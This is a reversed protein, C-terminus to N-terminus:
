KKNFLKYCYDLKTCRIQNPVFNRFNTYERNSILNRRYQSFYHHRKKINMNIAHRIWNKKQDKRCLTKTKVLRTENYIDLIPPSDVEYGQEVDPECMQHSTDLIAVKQYFDNLTSDNVIWYENKRPQIEDPAFFEVYIIFM